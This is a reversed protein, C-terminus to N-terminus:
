ESEAALILTNYILVEVASVESFSRIKYLSFIENIQILYQRENKEALVNKTSM